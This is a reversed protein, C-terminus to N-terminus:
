LAGIKVILGGIMMFLWVILWDDDYEVDIM